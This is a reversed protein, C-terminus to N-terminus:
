DNEVYNGSCAIRAYNGVFPENGGFWIFLEQWNSHLLWTCQEALIYENRCGRDENAM